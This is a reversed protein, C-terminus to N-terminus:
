HQHVKDRCCERLITALKRAAPGVANPDPFIMYLQVGRSNGLKTELQKIIGEELEQQIHHTPLWAFGLGQKVLRISSSIHSVTWREESGLWGADTDRKVGSDRIYHDLLFPSCIRTVRSCENQYCKFM